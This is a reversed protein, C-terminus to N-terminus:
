LDWAAEQQLTEKTTNKPEKAIHDHVLLWFGVNLYPKPGPNLLNVLLALVLSRVGISTGQSVEWLSTGDLQSTFAKLGLADQWNKELQPM